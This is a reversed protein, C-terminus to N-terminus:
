GASRVTELVLRAVLAAREVQPMHGVGVLRHLAVAEPIKAAHSVPIVADSTGWLIRTPLGSAALAPRLDITQTGSPFLTAALRAQEDIRGARLRDRFLRAAHDRPLVTPDAVLRGLWPALAEPSEAALFGALFAADIEPGLGAPALLTQTLVRIRGRAALALAVAGGLSHGVLHLGEGGIPELDAELADVLDDFREARHPSRGHSALDPTRLPRGAGLREVVPAWSTGDAGFGHLLVIPATSTAASAHVPRSAESRVLAPAAGEIKAEGIVREVDRSKIRGRPGTGTVRALDVGAGAAIRRALPSAVIRGVRGDSPAPATVSPASAPVISAPVAATTAAVGEGAEGIRGLVRGVAAEEGVPVLIELLVGSQPAAIESAAKATEVVVVVDGAAVRDGVAFNWAVVAASEMYEGAGGTLEIDIAM